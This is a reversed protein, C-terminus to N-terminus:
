TWANNKCPGVQIPICTDAENDFLVRTQAPAAVLRLDERHLATPNSLRSTLWGEKSRAAESNTCYKGLPGPLEFVGRRYPTGITVPTPQSESMDELCGVRSIRMWFVDKWQTLSGNSATNQNFPLHLPASRHTRTYKPKADKHRVYGKSSRHSAFTGFPTILILFFPSLNRLVM